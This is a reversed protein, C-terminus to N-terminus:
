SSRPCLCRSVKWSSDSDSDSEAESSSSSSSSAVSDEGSDDTDRRRITKAARVKRSAKPDSQRADYIAQKQEGSLKDYAKQSLYGAPRKKDFKAAGRPGKGKGIKDRSKGGKKKWYPVKGTAAERHKSSSNVAAITRPTNMTKQDALQLKLYSVTAEFNHQYM